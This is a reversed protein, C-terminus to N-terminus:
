TRIIEIVADRGAGGTVTIDGAVTSLDLAGAAGIALTRKQHDVVQAKLNRDQAGTSGFHGIAAVDTLVSRFVERFVDGVDSIVIRQRVDHTQAMAPRAMVASLLCAAVFSTMM